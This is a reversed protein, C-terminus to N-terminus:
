QIAYFKIVRPANYVAVARFVHLLLNFSGCGVGGDSCAQQM